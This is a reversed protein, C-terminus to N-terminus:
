HQNVRNDLAESAIDDFFEALIARLIRFGDKFSHLNSKGYKRRLEGSPVEVVGLGLRAVKVFVEAEIEFNKSKLLPCLKVVVDRKFAAFGYCLDTYNTSWLMNVLSVLVKNGIRRLMSMDETFGGPLFRSAKAVDAGSALTDVLLAIEKPNMSGDADMVVAFDFDIANHSFAQRLAFGKGKGEQVLVNAGSDKAAEVTGDTSNGDVVLIKNYGLQKLERLITRINREENLTPIILAVNHNKQLNGSNESFQHAIFM